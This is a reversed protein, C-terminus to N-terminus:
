APHVRSCVVSMKMPANAEAAAAAAEAEAADSDVDCVEDGDVGRSGEGGM